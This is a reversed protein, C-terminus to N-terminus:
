CTGRPTGGAFLTDVFRETDHLSAAVSGRHDAGQYVRYAVDRYHDCLSTVLDDTGSKVVEHDATGQAVMTPVRLRLGTPDQSDLYRALPGLDAGERFVQDPPITAAVKRIAGLCRTRGATLLSRARQTLLKRPHVAPEAAAAGLLLSPLFAVATAAGPGGKKIYAATESLDVGGPAVAVTGLLRLGRANPRSTGAFLAAQGGQSHGMAVWDRGVRHDLERAARVIDRVTNAESEGNIYPHMGPTGLGEYDTRVVAYGRAVWKDLTTDVLGLYDHAPGDATDESPACIDAVGTTGHAWSIVPWGGPPPPTDPLSITGSVVIPKGDADESLYTVLRNSGASPLAAANTLPRSTLLTGRHHGPAAGGHRVGAAVTGNPGAAVAVGAMTALVATAAVAGLVRITRTTVTM